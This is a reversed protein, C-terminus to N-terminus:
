KNKFYNKKDFLIFYYNNYDNFFNDSCDSNGACIPGGRGLITFIEYLYLSRYGLYTMILSDYM